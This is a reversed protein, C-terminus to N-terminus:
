RHIDLVHAFEAVDALLIIKQSSYYKPAVLNGRERRPVMAATM